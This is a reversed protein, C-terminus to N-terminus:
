NSFVAALAAERDSADLKQMTASLHSRVTAACIFLREAIEITTRGQKLLCLVEWERASLELPQDGGAPLIIGGPARLQRVLTAAMARPVAPEGALVAEIAACLREPPITLPLYGAAGAHILSLLEAESPRDFLVVIAAEPALTALQSVLSTACESTTNEFGDSGLVVADPRTREAVELLEELCEAPVVECGHGDVAGM